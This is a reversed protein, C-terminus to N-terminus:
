QPGHWDIGARSKCAGPNLPMRARCRPCWPAQRLPSSVSTPRTANNTNQQPDESPHLILLDQTNQEQTM